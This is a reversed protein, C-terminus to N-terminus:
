AGFAPGSECSSNLVQQIGPRTSSVPFPMFPDLCGAQTQHLSETSHNSKTEIECNFGIPSPFTLYFASPVTTRMWAVEQKWLWLPDSPELTTHSLIRM